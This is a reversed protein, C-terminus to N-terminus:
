SAVAQRSWPSKSVTVIFTGADVDESDPGEAWATVQITDGHRADVMIALDDLDVLRGGHAELIQEVTFAVDDVTAM